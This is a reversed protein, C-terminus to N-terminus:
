YIKLQGTPGKLIEFITLSPSILALDFKRLVGLDGAYPTVPM